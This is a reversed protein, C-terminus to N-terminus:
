TLYSELKKLIQIEITQRGIVKEYGEHKTKDPSSSNGRSSNM